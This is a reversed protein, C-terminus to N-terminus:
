IPLSFIVLDVRTLRAFEVLDDVTGLKQQSGCVAPARDEARDDFLGVIRVDSDQQRALADILKEGPEGAGVVVARRELRGERTWNRVLGALCVRFGILAVLGIVYFAALWVCSYFGGLRAFFAVAAAVLFLLSWAILLRICESGPSRFAQVHYIDAAQFGLVALAAIGIVTAPYYWDFGNPPVVYGLYVAAGVAVMLGFEFFRVFGAVVVPSYAPAHPEAAALKAAAPLERARGPSAVLTAAGGAAVARQPDLESM